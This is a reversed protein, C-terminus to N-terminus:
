REEVEDQKVFLYIDRGEQEGKYILIFKSNIYGSVSTREIFNQLSSEHGSESEKVYFDYPLKEQSLEERKAQEKYYTLLQAGTYLREEVIGVTEALSGNMGVSAQDNAYNVMDIINSMLLVGATLATIFIFVYVGVMLAEFMSQEM